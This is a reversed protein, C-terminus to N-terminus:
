LEKAFHFFGCSYHQNALGEPAIDQRFVGSDDVGAFGILKLAQFYELVQGPTHIRHANFCTRQKGVPVSFYINGGPALVRALEQVARETGHPDLLDGYRGLGIHEAVHLCSLSLLSSDAFPLGVISGRVANYNQLQASLPRIDVFTVETIVSLLGVFISRSGIDVHHTVGSQKILRSAWVEQYLYHADFSTRETRDFLCPYSDIFCLPEADPLSVYIRWDQVYRRYLSVSQRLPKISVIPRMWRSRFHNCAARISKM